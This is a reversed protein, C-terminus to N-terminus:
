IKFFYLLSIKFTMEIPVQMSQYINKLCIGIIFSEEQSMGNQMMIQSNMFPCKGIDLDWENCMKKM